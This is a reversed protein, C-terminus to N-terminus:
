HSDRETAAVLDEIPIPGGPLQARLEAVEKLWALAKAQKKLERSLCELAQSNLSRGHARAVQELGAVLEEPVDHLTLTAM